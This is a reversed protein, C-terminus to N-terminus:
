THQTMRLICDISARLSYLFLRTQAARMKLSSPIKVKQDPARGLSALSTSLPPITNVMDTKQDDKRKRTIRPQLYIIRALLSYQGTQRLLYSFVMSTRSRHSGLRCYIQASSEELRSKFKNMDM